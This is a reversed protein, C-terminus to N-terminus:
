HVNPYRAFLAPTLKNVLVDTCQAAMITAILLQLPNAYDLSCRAEPYLRTLERNIRKARTHLPTDHANMYVHYCRGSTQAAGVLGELEASYCGCRTKVRFARISRSQSAGWSTSSPASAM